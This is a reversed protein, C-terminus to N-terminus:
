GARWGAARALLEFARAVTDHVWRDDPRRGELLVSVDHPALWRGESHKGPELYPHALDGEVQALLDVERREVGDAASWDILEVVPGARALRWGTEERVERALAELPGEGEDVHGGVIDWCGPFLARQESRRQVYIRGQDDAILAGVVLRRGATSAERAFAALEEATPVVGVRLSQDSEM